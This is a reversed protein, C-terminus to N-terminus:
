QIPPTPRHPYPGNTVTSPVPYPGPGSPHGPPYPGPGSLDDATASPATPLGATTPSCAVTILSLGAVVILILLHRM